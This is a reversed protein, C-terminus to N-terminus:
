KKGGGFFTGEAGNTLDFLWYNEGCNRPLTALTPWYDPQLPEKDDSWRTGLEYIDCLRKDDFPSGDGKAYAIEDPGKKGYFYIGDDDWHKPPPKSPYQGKYKPEENLTPWKNYARGNEFYPNHDGKIKIYELSMDTIGSFGDESVDLRNFPYKDKNYDVILTSNQVEIQNLYLYKIKSPVNPKISSLSTDEHATIILDTPLPIIQDKFPYGINFDQFIYQNDKIGYKNIQNEEVFKIINVWLKIEFFNKTDWLFLEYRLEENGSKDIWEEVDGFNTKSFNYYNDKNLTLIVYKSIMDLNMRLKDETTSQTYFNYNTRDDLHIKEKNVREIKKFLRNFNYQTINEYKYNPSSPLNTESTINEYNQVYNPINKNNDWSFFSEKNYQKLYILLGIICM